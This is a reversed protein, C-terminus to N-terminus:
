GFWHNHMANLFAPEGVPYGSGAGIVSDVSCKPCLATGDEDELWEEVDSTSFTASCYFCGCLDSRELEARHNTSHRHAAELVDRSFAM